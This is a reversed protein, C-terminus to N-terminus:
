VLRTIYGVYAVEVEVDQMAFRLAYQFESNPDRLEEVISEAAEAVDVVHSAIEVDASYRRMRVHEVGSIEELTSQLGRYAGGNIRDLPELWRVSIYNEALIAIEIEIKRNM